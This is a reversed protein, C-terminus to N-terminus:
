NNIANRHIVAQDIINSAVSAWNKDSYLRKKERNNDLQILFERLDGKDIYAWDVLRNINFNTKLADYNLIILNKKNEALKPVFVNIPINALVEDVNIEDKISEIYLEAMNISVGTKYATISEFGEKIHDERIEDVKEPISYLETGEFPIIAIFGDNIMKEPIHPKIKENLFELANQLGSPPFIIRTHLYKISDPLNIPQKFPYVVSPFSNLAEEIKEIKHFKNALVLFAKSSTSTSKLEKNIRKQLNLELQGINLKGERILIALTRRFEESQDKELKLQLSLNFTKNYKKTLEGTKERYDIDEITESLKKNNRYNHYYQVMLRAEDDLELFNYKELLSAIVLKYRESNLIDTESDIEHCLSVLLIADKELQSKHNIQNITFVFIKERKNFDIDSKEIEGILKSEKLDLDDEQKLFSLLSRLHGEIINRQQSSKKFNGLEEVIADYFLFLVGCLIALFVKLKPWENESLTEGFYISGGIVLSFIFRLIFIGSLPATIFSWIRKLTRYSNM